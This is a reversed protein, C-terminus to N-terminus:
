ECNSSCNPKCNYIPLNAFNPTYVYNIDCYFKINYYTHNCLKAYNNNQICVLEPDNYNYVNNSVGRVTPPVSGILFETEYKCYPNPVFNYRLYLSIIESCDSIKIRVLQSFMSQYISNRSLSIIFHGYIYNPLYEKFQRWADEASTAVTLSSSVFNSKCLHIICMNKDKFYTICKKCRCKKYKKKKYNNYVEVNAKSFNFGNQNICQNSSNM